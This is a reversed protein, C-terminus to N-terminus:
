YRVYRSLGCDADNGLYLETGGAETLEDLGGGGGLGINCGMKWGGDELWM